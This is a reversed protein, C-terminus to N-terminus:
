DKKLTWSHVLEPGVALLELLLGIILIACSVNEWFKKKQELKAATQLWSHRQRYLELPLGGTPDSPDLTEYPNEPSKWLSAVLEGIVGLLVLLVGALNCWTWGSLESWFSTAPM